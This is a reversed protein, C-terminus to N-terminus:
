DETQKVAQTKGTGGYSRQGAAIGQGEQTPPDSASFSVDGEGAEVGQGQGAGREIQEYPVKRMAGRIFYIMMGVLIMGGLVGVAIGVQAGTSLGDAPPPTTPVEVTFTLNLTGGANTAQLTYRGNDGTTPKSIILRAVVTRNPLVM